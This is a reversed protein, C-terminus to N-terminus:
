SFVVFVTKLIIKIDTLISFEEISKLNINMKSPLINEVYLKDIDDSEALLQEEDKYEVSTQSTVGAPLLLTAMMTDTYKEVYKEVEPRTGVFSMDGVIINLLQPLEDLRYKRLIKGINTVRNDNKTTVQSGTTEANEVMTRFKFIRFKKGYQTIRVQRFMIPGRSDVKIIISIIIFIPFLLILMLLSFVIDFIRKALLSLKKNSLIQYYRSVSDNKM